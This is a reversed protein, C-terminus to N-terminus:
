GETIKERLMWERIYPWCNLLEIGGAECGNLFHVVEVDVLTVGELDLAIQSQAGDLQRRLEEVHESQLRGNPCIITKQGDCITEIKLAM